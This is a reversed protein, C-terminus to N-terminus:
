EEEEIGMEAPSLGALIAGDLTAITPLRAKVALRQKPKTLDQYIPNGTFLVSRLEPLSSLKDLEEWNGIKNNSMFLVELKMCSHLGDLTTILNYSLWLEKLTQGIDELGAIRKIVNRGLSLIELHKFQGFPIMKDISNTSLALHRVNTLTNLTPDMREIPPILCLLCVKEAEEPPTDPNQEAWQQVARQCTTGPM